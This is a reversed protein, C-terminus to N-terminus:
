SLRLQRIFDSLALAAQRTRNARFVLKPRDDQVRNYPSGSVTIAAPAILSISTVTGTYRSTVSASRVAENLQATRSQGGSLRGLVYGYFISGVNRAIRDPHM